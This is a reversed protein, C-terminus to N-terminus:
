ALLKEPLGECLVSPFQECSCKNASHVKVFISLHFWPLLATLCKSIRQRWCVSSSTYNPVVLKLLSGGRTVKKKVLENILHCPMVLLSAFWLYHVVKERSSMILQRDNDQMCCVTVKKQGKPVFFEEDSSDERSNDNDLETSPKGYVLQM